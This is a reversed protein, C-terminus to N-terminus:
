SGSAASQRRTRAAALEDGVAAALHDLPNVEARVGLRELELLVPRLEKSLSAVAAGEATDLEAALRARLARLGDTRSGSSILSAADDTSDM